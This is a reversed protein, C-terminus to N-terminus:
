LSSYYLDEIDILIQCECLSRLHEKVNIFGINFDAFYFGLIYLICIFGVLKIFFRM